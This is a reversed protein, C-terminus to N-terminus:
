YHGYRRLFINARLTICLRLFSYSNSNIFYNCRDNLYSHFFLFWLIARPWYSHISLYFFFCLVLYGTHHINFFHQRTVFQQTWM